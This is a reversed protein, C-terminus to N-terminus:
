QNGTAPTAPAAPAEPTTPTGQNFVSNPETSEGPTVIMGEDFVIADSTTNVKVLSWRDFGSGDNDQRELYSEGRITSNIAGEATQDKYSYIFFAKVKGPGLLETWVREVVVDSASPKKAKVTDTILVALKEQIGSHTEFSVNPDTHVINWTWILAAAFVILALYKMRYVGAYNRSDRSSNLNLGICM